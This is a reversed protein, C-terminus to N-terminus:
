QGVFMKLISPIEEIIDIPILGYSKKRFARDGAFGSIYAAMRAANYPSVGKSLFAGCIGTLVDGTGGVTMAANGTKNLKLYTGDTIIDERGKLLLTLGIRRAYERVMEERGRERQLPQGSLRRFEMEHPTLIGRKGALIQPNKSVATIADADIVLPLDTEKVIRRVAELTRDDRGLGPGIVLADVESCLGLVTAVDDTTLSDGLLPHVILSPSFSAIVQYAKLPTAVRVLDAGSRYAALAALAPAGTYPGGGVVLLRGNDGKHSDLEPIPYYFLEGPGVYKQADEPIGIDAVRIEGSNESTMGEKLDHLTVTMTPKVSLVTGLGSPVDVSVIPKGLENIFKVLSSYPERVEGKVGIGLLADVALSVDDVMKKAFMAGEGVIIKDEIKELNRKALSSRIKEKPKALVVIPNCYGLLYRAAVFGDGGNNGSGCFFLVKKGEADFNQRIASAVERGANEMLQATSIGLYESNKDLVRVEEFPIM